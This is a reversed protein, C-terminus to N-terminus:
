RTGSAGLDAAVAEPGGARFLDLLRRREQLRGEERYPVLNVGLVGVLAQDLVALLLPGLRGLWRVVLSRALTVSKASRVKSAVSLGTMTFEPHSTPVLLDGAGLRALDQSGIFALIVDSDPSAARLVM